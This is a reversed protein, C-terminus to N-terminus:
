VGGPESVQDAFGNSTLLLQPTGVAGWEPHQYNNGYGDYTRIEQAQINAFGLGLTLTILGLLQKKM